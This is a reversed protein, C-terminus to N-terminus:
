IESGKKEFTVAVENAFFNFNMQSVNSESFAEITHRLIAARHQERLAASSLPGTNSRLCSWVLDFTISSRLVLYFIFPSAM